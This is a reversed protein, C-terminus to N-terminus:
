TWLLTRHTSETSEQKNLTHFVETPCETHKKDTHFSTIMGKLIAKITLSIRSAFEALMVTWTSAHETLFALSSRCFYPLEFYNM